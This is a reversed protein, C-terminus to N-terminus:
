GFLKLITQPAQNAQAIMSVSSQQLFNAKTLNMMEKAMDADRIRSRSASLNESTVDLSAQTYDLRNSAAGLKARETTVITLARDIADLYNTTNRGSEERLDFNTQGAGNGIGLHATNVNNISLYMGQGANPGIQFYLGSTEKHNPDTLIDQEERLVKNYRSLDGVLLINDKLRALAEGQLNDFKIDNNKIASEWANLTNMIANLEELSDFDQEVATAAGAFYDEFVAGSGANEFVNLVENLRTADKTIVQDLTEEAGNHDVDVQQVGSITTLDNNITSLINELTALNLNLRGQIQGLRASTDLQEGNLLTKKNYEVRAATQDIETILQNIEDQIKQRDGTDTSSVSQENTDNSAYVVLERIRQLMDDITQLGGEATQILSQADVSNKSAMDLGAIQASMKESIALGAADDSATNIRKGSSLRSSARNQISGIDKMNRHANLALINTQIVANGM